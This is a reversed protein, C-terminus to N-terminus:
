KEKPFFAVPNVAPYMCIVKMDEGGTNRFGHMSGAPALLAAGAEVPSSEGGALAEGKGQVVFFAEEVLHSHQPLTAGPQITLESMTVAASGQDPNLLPRSFVGPFRSTPQVESVKVIKM